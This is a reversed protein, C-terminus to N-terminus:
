YLRNGKELQTIFKAIRAQRTEAKKATQIQFLITYRNTKNLIEYTTKAAQNKNLADILDQPTQITSPSDYAQDWRGDKKAAEVAALGSPQMKGAAILKAVKEVNIKSWTSKPRRPTFKQLYYTGDLSRTQGDIWGYCLAVDLAQTHDITPIGSAKKAVKIWVGPTEYHSRLWKEWDHQSAFPLIPLDKDSM